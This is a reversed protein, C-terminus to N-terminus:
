NQENTTNLKNMLKSIMDKIDDVSSELKNFREETEKKEKFVPNFDSLIIECKEITTKNIDVQKLAQEAQEKVSEVERLIGDRNPSIILNDAYGIETSDKFTYTKTTDNTKITVDVVMGSYHMDYHPMGINIVKGEEVSINNRDFIFIPYNSKLDKFLM